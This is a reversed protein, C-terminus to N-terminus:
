RRLGGAPDRAPSSSRPGTAGVPTDRHNQRKEAVLTYVSGMRRLGPIRRAGEALSPLLREALASELVARPLVTTAMLGSMTLSVVRFGSRDLMRTLVGPSLIQEQGYEVPDGTDPDAFRTHPRHRISGRIRVSRWLALLNSRNPDSIVLRGGDALARHALDLFRQAPYIHSIAEMAWIVDFGSSRELYSFINGAVFSIRLPEGACTAFFELRSRALQAREPVLEVGTVDHGMLAMLYSETGYGCGADLVRQPALRRRLLDALPWIRQVYAHAAVPLPQGKRDLMSGYYRRLDAGDLDHVRRYELEEGLLTAVLGGLARPSELWDEGITRMGQGGSETM